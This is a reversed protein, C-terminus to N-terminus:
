LHIHTINTKPTKTIDSPVIKELQIWTDTFKIIDIKYSSLLIENYLFLYVMNKNDTQQNLSILTTQLKQSNHIFSCNVYKFLPGATSHTHGLTM